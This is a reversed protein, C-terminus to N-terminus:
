KGSGRVEQSYLPSLDVVEWIPTNLTLHALLQLPTKFVLHEWWPLRLPSSFPEPSWVPLELHPIDCGGLGGHIDRVAPLVLYM